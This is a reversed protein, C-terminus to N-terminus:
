INYNIYPSLVSYFYINKIINFSFFQINNYNIMKHVHKNYYRGYM